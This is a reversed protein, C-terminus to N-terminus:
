KAEMLVPQPVRAFYARNDKPQKWRHAKGTAEARKLLGSAQNTNPVGNEVALAIITDRAVPKDSLVTKVLWDTDRSPKKPEPEAPPRAQRRRPRKLDTPDLEHAPRWLPYSWKICFDETPSFSRVVLSVVAAGDQAHPRLALHADAARSQAGAGAGLDTVSKSTQDGKSLHHVVVIAAANEEATARLAAYLDAIDANANEDLDKPFTAYLPDIVILDYQGALSLYRGIGRADLRRGRLPEIALNDGLEAANLGMASAVAQLRKAITGPALEYDLVLVRGARTTFNLWDRGQAVSLALNLVLWSKNCKPGSVINLVEGRRALGSIIPENQTPFAQLLEAASLPRPTIDPEPEPEADGPKDPRAQGNHLASHVTRALEAEPLPPNNRPNWRSRLLDLIEPEDLRYGDQSFAALNGALSFAQSNRGGVVSPKAADTYRAARQQLRERGPVPAAARPPPAATEGRTARVAAAYEECATLLERWTVRAPDGDTCWVIPEGNEHTSGPGMTQAGDARLEVISGGAATKWRRTKGPTDCYFLLHGQPKSDRGFSSGTLPFLERFLAPEYIDFDIDVLGGSLKGLLIGINGNPDFDGPAFGANQWNPIKPAKSRAPLPVVQWGRALYNKAAERANM